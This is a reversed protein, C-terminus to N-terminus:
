AYNEYWKHLLFLNWLPAKNDAKGSLHDELLKCCLEPKVLGVAKINEASLVEEFQPALKGRIWKKM